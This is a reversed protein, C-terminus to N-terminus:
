AYAPPSTLNSEEKMSPPFQIDLNDLLVKGSILRPLLMERVRQLDEVCKSLIAIQEDIIEAVKQYRLVLDDDPQLVRFRALEDKGVSNFIAGNGIIDENAFVVKLMYYLYSNHGTKHRAAALGRGIIMECDAINLRGVPARVSFLIDGKRAKRGNGNCYTGRKPFRTGYTGVGQHFPLGDGSENYSKSPPSQGMTFHAVEDFRKITLNAPIGKVFRANKYGPFRFRVFWERYIEEALKELLAIRRENAGILDDYSSLVAAIKLQTEKNQPYTVPVRRLINTNLNAMTAGIAQGEIWRIIEPMQLYRHLFGPVVSANGLTIRLCGTGCLWGINENRVLAQRGIDGRRGYVIDGKSLKHKHLREVHAELVRAIRAEDIKGDLIDQPMVVPIGSESYDSEHLQSGFPGTKVKGGGADCLLGLKDTRWGKM